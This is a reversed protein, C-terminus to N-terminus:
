KPYWVRGHCFPCIEDGLLSESTAAHTGCEDKVPGRTPPTEPRPDPTGRRRAESLKTRRQEDALCQTRSRDSEFLYGLWRFANVIM